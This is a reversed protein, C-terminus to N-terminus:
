DFIQTEEEDDEEEDDELEEEEDPDGIPKPDFPSPPMKEKKKQELM